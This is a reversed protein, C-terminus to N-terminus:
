WPSKITAKAKGQIKHSTTKQPLRIGCPEKDHYKSIGETQIQRDIIIRYVMYDQIRIVSLIFINGQETKSQYKSEKHHRTREQTGLQKKPRDNSSDYQNNFFEIYTRV